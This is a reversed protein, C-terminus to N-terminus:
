DRGIGATSGAVTKANSLDPMPMIPELDLKAREISKQLQRPELKGAIRVQASWMDKRAHDMQTHMRAIDHMMRLRQQRYGLLVAAVATVFLVIVVLKGAM